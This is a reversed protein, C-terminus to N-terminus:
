CLHILTLKVRTLLRVRTSSFRSKSEVEVLLLCVESQSETGGLCVRSESERDVRQTARRPLGERFDPGGGVEM